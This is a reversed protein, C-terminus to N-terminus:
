RHQPGDSLAPDHNAILSAVSAPVPRTVAWDDPVAAGATLRLPVVGTWAESPEDPASSGGTRGKYLWNDSALPLVLVVTAAVEKARNRRIESVRGPILKDTLADLAVLADEGSLVSVSGRITASRYNASSNFASHAVVLGDLSFVTLCCPAGASLHRLLGAGTSGHLLVRDGDRAFLIPVSWPQGDVVSSLTGVLVEDLLANM